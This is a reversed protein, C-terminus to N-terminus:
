PQSYAIVSFDFTPTATGGVAWRVRIRDAFLTTVDVVQRTTGTARTFTPTTSGILNWNAGDVTDELYVDLTPSNGSVATVSLQVRLRSAHGFGGIAGTDGSATRALPEVLTDTATLVPTDSRPM